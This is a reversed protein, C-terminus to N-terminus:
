EIVKIARPPKVDSKTRKILHAKAEDISDFEFLSVTAWGHLFGLIKNTPKIQLSYKGNSLLVIRRYYEYGKLVM